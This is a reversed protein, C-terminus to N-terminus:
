EVEEAEEDEEDRVVRAALELLYQSPDTISIEDQLYTNYVPGDFRWGQQAVYASAREPLDNTEGYFGRTYAFVYHGPETKQRGGPNRFFFRDPRSPEQQWTEFSGFFGGTPFGLNYNRKRAYDCFKLFPGYFTEADAWDNEPGLILNHPAIEEIFISDDSVRMGKSMLQNLTRIIHQSDRMWQIRQELYADQEGLLASINEPTRNRVLTIITKLPIQLDTLVKILNVTIIQQPSYYRYGNGGRKIPSFLGIEDYYILSSRSIGTFHAFKSISLLETSDM